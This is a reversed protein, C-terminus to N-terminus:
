NQCHRNTVLINMSLGQEDLHKVARILGEMEM